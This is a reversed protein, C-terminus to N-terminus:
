GKNRKFALCANQGGFGFSNSVAVDVKLDRPGETVYDLDCDADTEEYNMTPPVVGRDIALACVAAEVAGAAGLLHGMQSKTSSVSLKKAENGFAAKIALTEVRDNYQTSTGHANLYDVEDPSLNADALANRLAITAGAGRSRTTHRSIRRGVRRVRCHLM